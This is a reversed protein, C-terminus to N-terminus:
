DGALVEAIQSAREEAAALESTSWVPLRRFRLTSVRSSQGSPEYRYGIAWYFVAGPKVLVRDEGPVDEFLLEVEEEGVDEDTLDTLRALFEEERCELVVGEWRQLALFVGRPPEPDTWVAPTPLSPTALAQVAVALPMPSEPEVEVAPRPAVALYRVKSAEEGKPLDQMVSATEESSRCKEQGPFDFTIAEQNM